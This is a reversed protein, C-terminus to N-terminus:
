KHYRKDIFGEAKVPLGKAWKPLKCMLKAAKKLSGFEEPIEMIVEDHVTGVIPYGEDELNFMGGLLLDRAIAQVANEVLKGGYTDCRCWQRTYTNTGMFTVRGDGALRPKYYALRRGSPLRMYLWDGVVKFMVKAGVGAQYTAGPNAVAAAAAEDMKYWLKVVCPNGARWDEKIQEAFEEAVEVGYQKAMKAFAVKGGQYGLALIAIKGIFRQDKNVEEYKIKYIQAAAVKYIDLGQRFSETVDDQGALWAIVRAEIAAYDLCMLNMGDAPILMGRVCSALIKMPHPEFMGELFDLDRMEFMEIALYAEDIEEGNEDKVVLQSRYLNQLQVIRSTWRGTSAGHYVFMGHLRGDDAVAREMAVYKSVAKMNHTNYLKLVKKVVKPCNDDLLSERVTASQLNEIDYGQETRIWDSLAATQSPKLGTIKLCKESIRRKCEEVLIQVDIVRPMDVQIGRDNITQDLHYARMENPSLDPIYEDLDSEAEVDDACYEFTSQFDEPVADMTWRTAPNLKSPKRPKCLKLMSQHGYPDKPYTGCAKAARGLAAPISHAAAKAMTCTWQNAPVQPFGVKKGATGSLVLREFQANWARLEGGSEIYELLDDPIEKQIYTKAGPRLKEKRPV